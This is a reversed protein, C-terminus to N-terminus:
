PTEEAENSDVFLIQNRKRELHLQIQEIFLVKCADLAWMFWTTILNLPSPATTTRHM